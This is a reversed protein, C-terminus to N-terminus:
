VQFIKNEGRQSALPGHQREADWITALKWVRVVCNLSRKVGPLREAQVRLPLVTSSHSDAPFEGCEEVNSM